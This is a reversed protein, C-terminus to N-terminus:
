GANRTQWAESQLKGGTKIYSDLDVNFPTQDTAPVDLNDHVATSPTGARHTHRRGSEHRFVRARVRDHWEHSSMQQLHRVATNSPFGLGPFKTESHHRGLSDSTYDHMSQDGLPLHQLIRSSQQHDHVSASSVQWLQGNLDSLRTEMCHTRDHAAKVNALWRVVKGDTSHVGPLLSRQLKAAHSQPSLRTNCKVPVHLSTSSCPSSTASDSVTCSLAKSEYVNDRFDLHVAFGCFRKHIRAGCMNMKCQSTRNLRLHELQRMVTGYALAPIQCVSHHSSAVLWQLRTASAPVLRHECATFRQVQPEV